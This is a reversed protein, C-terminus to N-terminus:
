RWRSFNSGGRRRMQGPPWATLANLLQPQYILLAGLAAGGLHAAEGGANAGRSLVTYAAIGLTIWALTKLRMPIPFMLLMVSTDPAIRAAAILIGMIGASAGVLPTDAYVNLAGFMMLALYCAAGSVGCVLYFILFRRSGLFGEVMPGFFYLALMNFVLHEVGHHLFQFTILRWLQLHGLAAESSFYGLDTLRGGSLGDLLFVGCNIVILWITYSWAPLSGFAGRDPEKRYYDRDQYGM